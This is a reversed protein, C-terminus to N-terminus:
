WFTLGNQNDERANGKDILHHIWPQQYLGKVLKAGMNKGPCRKDDLM